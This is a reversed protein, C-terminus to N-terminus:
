RRVAPSKLKELLKGSLGEFSGNSMVIVLDGPKANAELYEAIEDASEFAKAPRGRELLSDAIQSRFLM